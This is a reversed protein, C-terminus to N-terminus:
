AYDCHQGVEDKGNVLLHFQAWQEKFGELGAQLVWLFRLLLIWCRIMQHHVITGGGLQEQFGGSM